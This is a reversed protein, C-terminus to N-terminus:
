LEHSRFFFGTPTLYFSIQIFLSSRPVTNKKIYIIIALDEVKETVKSYYSLNLILLKCTFSVYQVDATCYKFKLFLQYSFNSKVM